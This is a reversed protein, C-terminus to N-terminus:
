GFTIEVTMGRLLSEADINSVEEEAIRQATEECIERIRDEGLYHDEIVERVIKRIHDNMENMDGSDFHSKIIEVIYSKMACMAENAILQERNTTM